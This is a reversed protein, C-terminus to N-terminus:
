FSVFSRKGGSHFHGGGTGSGGRGGGSAAATSSAAALSSDVIRFIHHEHIPDRCAMDQADTPIAVYVDAGNSPVVICCKVSKGM